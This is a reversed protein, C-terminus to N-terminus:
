LLGGIKSRLAPSCHRPLLEKAMALWKPYGTWNETSKRGDVGRRGSLRMLNILPRTELRSLDAVAQTYDLYRQMRLPGVTSRFLRVEFRTPTRRSCAKYKEGSRAFDSPRQLGYRAWRNDQRGGIYEGLQRWGNILAAFFCGQLPTFASSDVSIHCGYRGATGSTMRAAKAVALWEGFQAMPQRTPLFVTEVGRDALSGDRELSWPAEDPSLRQIAELADWDPALTENELGFILGDGGESRLRILTERGLPNKGADGHRLIPKM